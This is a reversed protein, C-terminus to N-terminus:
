DVVTSTQDRIELLESVMMATRGVSPEYYRREGIQEGIVVDCMIFVDWLSSPLRRYMKTRGPSEGVRPPVRELMGLTEFRRLEAGVDGPWRRGNVRCWDAYLSAWIHDAEKDPLNAIWVAVGLRKTNGFLTRSVHEHPTLSMDDTVHEHFVRRSTAGLFANVKVDGLDKRLHRIMEPDLATM